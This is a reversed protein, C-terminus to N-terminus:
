RKLAKLGDGPRSIRRGAGPVPASEQPIAAGGIWDRVHDLGLALARAEEANRRSGSILAVVEAGKPGLRVVPSGSAGPESLCDLILFETRRARALCPSQVSLRARRGGPYSLLAVEAGAAPTAGLPLPSAAEEPTPASLVIRAVDMRAQAETYRGGTAFYGPHVEVSDARLSAVATRGAWGAHFILQDAPTVSRAKADAVCHAATLVLAPAVLVGTCSGQKSVVLGVARYAAAEEPTAYRRESADAASVLLLCALLARIM